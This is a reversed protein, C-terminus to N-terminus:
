CCFYNCFIVFKKLPDLDMQFSNFIVYNLKM